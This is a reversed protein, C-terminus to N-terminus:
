TYDLIYVNKKYFWVQLELVAGLHDHAVPADPIVGDAIVILRGDAFLPTFLFSTM